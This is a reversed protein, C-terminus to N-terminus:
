IKLYLQTEMPDQVVVQADGSVTCAGPQLVLKSNKGVRAEIVKAEDGDYGVVQLGVPYFNEPASKIDKVQRHILKDFWDLIVEAAQTVQDIGQTGDHQLSEIHYGVTRGLLISWGFTGIGFKGHFPFLKQAFSSTSLPTPPLAPSPLDTLEIEEECKPCRTRLQPQLAMQGQVTSLSDAAMVVGDPICLSVVLSM